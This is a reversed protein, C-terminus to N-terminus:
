QIVFQEFLVEGCELFCGRAVVQVGLGVEIGGEAQGAHEAVADRGVGRGFGFGDKQVGEAGGEGSGVMGPLRLDPLAGATM